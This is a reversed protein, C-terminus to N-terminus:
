PLLRALHHQWVVGLGQRQRHVLFLAPVPLGRVQRVGGSVGQPSLLWCPRPCWRSPQAGLPVGPLLRPHSLCLTSPKGAAWPCATAARTRGARALPHEAYPSGTLSPLPSHPLAAWQAVRYGLAGLRQKQGRRWEGWTWSSEALRRIWASPPAPLSLRAPMGATM